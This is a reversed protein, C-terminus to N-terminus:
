QFQFQKQFYSNNNNNNLSSMLQSPPTTTAFSNDSTNDQTSQTPKAFSFVMKATAACHASINQAAMTSFSLFSSPAIISPLSTVANTNLAQVERLPSIM